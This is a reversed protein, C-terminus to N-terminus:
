RGKTDRELLVCGSHTGRGDRCGQYGDRGPSGGTVGAPVSAM